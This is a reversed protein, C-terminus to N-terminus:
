DIPVWRSRPVALIFSPIVERSVGGSWMVSTYATEGEAAVFSGTYGWGDGSIPVGSAFVGFSYTKDEALDHVYASKPGGWYDTGSWYNLALSAYRGESSLSLGDAIAISGERGRLTSIHELMGEFIPRVSRKEVDYLVVQVAGQSSHLVVIQSEDPTFILQKASEPAGTLPAGSRDFLGWPESTKTQTDLRWSQTFVVGYGTNFYYYIYRGDSSVHLLDFSGLRLDQGEVFDFSELPKGREKRYIRERNVWSLFKGDSSHVFKAAVAGLSANEEVTLLPEISGQKPDALYYGYDGAPSALATATSRFLYGAGDRLFSGSASEAAFIRAWFADPAGLEGKDASWQQKSELILRNEAGDLQGFKGPFMAYDSIGECRLRLHHKGELGEIGTLLTATFIGAREPVCAVQFSFMSANVQTINVRFASAGEGSLEPSSLIPGVTEDENLALIAGGRVNTEDYLDGGLSFDWTVRYVPVAKFDFALTGTEVPESGIVVSLGAPPNGKDNGWAGEDGDGGGGCAALLFSLLLPSLLPLLKM